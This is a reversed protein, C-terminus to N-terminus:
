APAAPLASDGLSFSIALNLTLAAPPYYALPPTARSSTLSFTPGEMLPQFPLYPTHTFTYCMKSITNARFSNPLLGGRPSLKVEDLVEQNNDTM